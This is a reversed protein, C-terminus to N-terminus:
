PMVAVFAETTGGHTGYGAITKGNASVGTASQLVWNSLNVGADDLVTALSRIGNESDWIFAQSGSTGVVISGDASVALARSAGSLTGLDIADGGLTWRVARDSMGVLFGVGRTSGSATLGLLEGDSYGNLLGLQTSSTTYIMPDSVIKGGYVSGDPTVANFYLPDFSSIASVVQNTWVLGRHETDRDGWGVIRSGDDSIDRARSYTGYPALELQAM